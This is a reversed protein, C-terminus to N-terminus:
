IHTHLQVAVSKAIPATAVGDEPGFCADYDCCAACSPSKCIPIEARECLQRYFFKKWKMDATNKAALDTFHRQMLQNLVARHPLGMDQWLHGDGMCAIAVAHALWTHDPTDASRYEMLMQLLDDFEDLREASAPASEAQRFLVDGCDPFYRALLCAYDDLPLGLAPRGALTQQQGIGAIVCALVQSTLDVTGAELQRLIDPPLAM